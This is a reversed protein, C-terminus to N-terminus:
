TLNIVRRRELREIDGTHTSIRWLHGLLSWFSVGLLGLLAGPSERTGADSREFNARTVVISCLVKAVWARGAPEHASPEYVSTKHAAGRFGLSAYVVKLNPARSREM